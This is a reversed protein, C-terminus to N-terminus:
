LQKIHELLRLFLRLNKYDLGKTRLKRLRIRKKNISDDGFIIKDIEDKLSTDINLDNLIAEIDEDIIKVADIEIDKGKCNITLQSVTRINSVEVIFNPGVSYTKALIKMDQEYVIVEDANRVNRFVIRYDRRDPIINSKGAIPRIIVTYNNPFYNYEIETKIFYGQRYLSSVGDDEYLEYKNSKEGLFYELDKEIQKIYSYMEKPYEIGEYRKYCAGAM